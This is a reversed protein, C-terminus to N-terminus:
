NLQINGTGATLSTVKDSGDTATSHVLTGTATLTYTNVYRLIVIGSGGNGGSITGGVGGSGGGSGTNATGSNLTYSTTGAGGGGSGGSGPSTNAGAGGGGSRTVSSGTITSAVGSGGSGTGPNVGSGAGGAGGGGGGLYHGGDAGNGGAYGQNTTGSGAANGGSSISGGGGGSGGTQGASNSDGSRSGGAGGGTSTITSFVSDSGNYGRYYNASSTGPAGGAGVTVTYNTALQLTLATEASGGGGSTENNYASRYGGAGGGGGNYINGGGGGAIVLYNVTAPQATVTLGSITLNTNLSNASPFVGGLTITLVNGPNTNNYSQSSITLGNPLGAISATGSLTDGSKTITFTQPGYVSGAQGISSSPTTYTLGQGTPTNFSVTVDILTNSITFNNPSNTVVDIGTGGTITADFNGDILNKTLKTLAM